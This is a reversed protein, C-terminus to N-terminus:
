FNLILFSKLRFSFIWDDDFFCINLNVIEILIMMRIFGCFFCFASLFILKGIFLLFVRFFANSRMWSKGNMRGRGFVKLVGIFAMMLFLSGLWCRICLGGCHGCYHCNTCFSFRCILNSAFQSFKVYSYISYSWIWYNSILKDIFNNLITPKAM